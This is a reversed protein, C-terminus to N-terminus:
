SGAPATTAAGIRSLVIVTFGGREYARLEYTQGPRGEHDLQRGGLWLGYLFGGEERGQPARWNAPDFVLGDGPKVAESLEVLVGRETVGRVTGVRVGRHRPARGRVVTQHNTGSMFHPGLGRSYVQELDREQQPTGSLCHPSATLNNM